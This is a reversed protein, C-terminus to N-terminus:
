GSAVIGLDEFRPASEVWERPWSRYVVDNLLRARLQKAQATWQEATGPAPLLSIKKEIFRRLEYATVDQSQVAQELLPAVNAPDTQAAGNVALFTAIAAKITLRM